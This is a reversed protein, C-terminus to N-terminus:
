LHRYSHHLVPFMGIYNRLHCVKHGSSYWSMQCLLVPCWVNCMYLQLSFQSRNLFLCTRQKSKKVDSAFLDVAVIFLIVFGWYWLVLLRVYLVTGLDRRNKNKPKCEYYCLFLLTARRNRYMIMFAFLFSFPKPVLFYWIQIYKAYYTSGKPALKLWCVEGGYNHYLFHCCDSQLVQIYLKLWTHILFLFIECSFYFSHLRM